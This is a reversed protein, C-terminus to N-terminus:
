ELCAVTSRPRVQEYKYLNKKSIALTLFLPAHKDKWYASFEEQSVGAKPTVLVVMRFRQSPTMTLSYEFSLLPRHSARVFRHHRAKISNLVGYSRQYGRLVPVSPTVDVTRPWRCGGIHLPGDSSLNKGHVANHGLISTLLCEGVRYALAEAIELSFRDEITLSCMSTLVIRPHRHGALELSM